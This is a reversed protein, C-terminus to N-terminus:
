VELTPDIMIALPLDSVPFVPPNFNLDPTAPPADPSIVISDPLAVRAEPSMLTNVPSAATSEPLTVTSDPDLSLPFPPLIEKIAPSELM